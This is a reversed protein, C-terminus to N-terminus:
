LKLSGLVDFTITYFFGNKNFCRKIGELKGNKFFFVMVEEKSKEFDLYAKQYVLDYGNENKSRETIDGLEWADVNQFDKIEFGTVTNNNPYHISFMGTEGTYLIIRPEVYETSKGSNNVNSTTTINTCVAKYVPGDQSFGIGINIALLILTLIKM